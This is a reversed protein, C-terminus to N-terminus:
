ISFIIVMFFSIISPIENQYVYEKVSRLHLREQEKGKALNGAAQQLYKPIAEIREAIAKWGEPEQSHAIQFQLLSHPLVSAEISDLHLKAERFAHVRFQSFAGMSYFDFLEGECLEDPNLTRLQALMSEEAAVRSDLHSESLNPLKDAHTDLGLFRRRM